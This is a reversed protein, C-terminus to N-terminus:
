QGKTQAKASQDAIAKLKARQAPTFRKAFGEPNKSAENMLKQMKVPDGGSEKNVTEMVDASLDYMANLNQESGAAKRATEHAARAQPDKQVAEDRLRADRLMQQTQQLAQQTAAAHAQLETDDSDDAATETVVFGSWLLITLVTLYRFYGARFGRGISVNKNDM